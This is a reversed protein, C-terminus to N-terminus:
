SGPNDRVNKEGEQMKIRAYIESLWGEMSSCRAMKIVEGSENRVVEHWVTCNGYYEVAYKEMGLWRWFFPVGVGRVTNVYYHYGDSALKHSQYEESLIM